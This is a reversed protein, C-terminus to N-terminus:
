AVWPASAQQPPPEPPPAIIRGEADVVKDLMAKLATGHAMIAARPQPLALVDGPVFKDGLAFAADAVVAMYRKWIPDAESTVNQDFATKAVPAQQPPAAPRSPQQPARAAPAQATAAAGDDDEPAVGVLATLGYRRAYTMASGIGQATQKMVPITTLSSVWEGSTHLLITEITVEQQESPVTVQLFALGADSLPKRIADIVTALDAYLYARGEFAVKNTAIVKGIEAQAKVLGKALEGITESRNM